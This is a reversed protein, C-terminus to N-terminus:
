EPEKRGLVNVTVSATQTGATATILAKGPALGRVFGAATVSAVDPNDSNWTAPLQTSVGSIRLAVLDGVEIEVQSPSISMVETGPGDPSTIGDDDCAVVSVLALLLAIRLSFM